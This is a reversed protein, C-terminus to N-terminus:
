VSASISSAPFHIPRQAVPLRWSLQLRTGSGSLSVDMCIMVSIVSWAVGGGDWATMEAPKVALWDAQWGSLCCAVGGSTEVGTGAWVSLSPCIPVIGGEMVVWEEEGNRAAAAEAWPALEM